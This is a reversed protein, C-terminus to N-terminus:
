NNTSILQKLADWRPDTVQSEGSDDDEDDEDYRGHKALVEQMSEECKGDAHVHRLPIQLAIQEYVQWSIDAVGEDEPVVILEGDDEYTEGLKIRLEAEGEVPQMMPELCRDCMVQVEGSFQFCVVYVGSTQRVQMEIAVNGSQIEDGQVLAFFEDDATLSRNQNVDQLGRLDIKYADLKEM